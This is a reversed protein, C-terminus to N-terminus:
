AGPEPASPGAAIKKTSLFQRYDSEWSRLEGLRRALEEQLRGVAEVSDGTHRITELLKQVHTDLLKQAEILRAETRVREEASPGRDRGPHARVAPVLVTLYWDSLHTEALERSRFLRDLLQVVLAEVLLSIGTAVLTAQIAYADEDIAKAIDHIFGMEGGSDSLGLIARKMPPFTLVLGVLTGLFGVKLVTRNVLAHIGLRGHDLLDRRDAANRLIVGSADFEGRLGLEIWRLCLDRTEAPPLSSLAQQLGGLDPESGAAHLVDFVKRDELARRSMQFLQSALVAQGVLFLVLIAAQVPNRYYLTDFHQMVMVAFLALPLPIALAILSQWRIRELVQAARVLSQLSTNM